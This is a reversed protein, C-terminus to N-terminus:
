NSWHFNFWKNSHFYQKEILCITNSFSLPDLTDINEKYHFLLKIFDEQYIPDIKLRGNFNDNWAKFIIDLLIISFYENALVVYVSLNPKKIEKPVDLYFPKYKLFARIYLAAIKHHDIYEQKADKEFIKTKIFEATDHYEKVIRGPKEITGIEDKFKLFKGGPRKQLNKLFDFCINRLDPLWKDTRFAIEKNTM